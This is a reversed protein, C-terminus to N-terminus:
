TNKREEIIDQAINLELRYEVECFDDINPFENLKDKFINLIIEAKDVPFGWAMEDLVECAWAIEEVTSKKLFDVTADYNKLLIYANKEFDLFRAHPESRSRQLMEHKFQEKISIDKWNM